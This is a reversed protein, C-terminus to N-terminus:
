AQAAQFQGRQALLFSSLFAAEDPQLAFITQGNRQLEIAGDSWVACRMAVPAAMANIKEPVPAEVKAPISKPKEAPKQKVTRDKGLYYQGGEVKLRGDRIAAKLYSMPYNGKPLKLLERLQHTSASGNARIFRIVAETKSISTDDVAVQEQSAQDPPATSTAIASAPASAASIPKPTDNLEASTGVLDRGEISNRFRETFMFGNAPRGNPATVPIVIIQDQDIYPKLMPQAMEPDMDVLDAIEVTRIMPQRAILVLAEKLQANM